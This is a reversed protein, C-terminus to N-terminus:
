GLGGGGEAVDHKSGICQVILSRLVPGQPCAFIASSRSSDEPSLRPTGGIAERVSAVSQPSRRSALRPCPPAPVPCGHIPSRHTARAISRKPASAPTITHGCNGGPATIRSSIGRRRSPWRGPSLMMFKKEQWGRTRPAIEWPPSPAVACGSKKTTSSASRGRTRQKPVSKKRSTTPGPSSALPPRPLNAAFTASARLAPRYRLKEIRSVSCQTSHRTSRQPFSTKTM